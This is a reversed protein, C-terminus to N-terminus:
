LKNVRRTDENIETQDTVFFEPVCLEQKEEEENELEWKYIGFEMRRMSNEEEKM